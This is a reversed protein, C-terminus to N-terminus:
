ARPSTIQAEWYRIQSKVHGSLHFWAEDSIIYQFPDLLGACISNLLWMCYNVQKVVDAEQLNQVFTVRHPKLDLSKPRPCVIRVDRSSMDRSSVERFM